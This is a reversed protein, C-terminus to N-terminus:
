VFREPHCPSDAAALFPEDEVGGYVSAVPFPVDDYGVCLGISDTIPQSLCTQLEGM